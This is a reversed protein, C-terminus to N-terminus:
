DLSPTDPFPTDPFSPHDPNPQPRARRLCTYTSGQQTGLTKYTHTHSTHTCSTHLGGTEQLTNTHAPTPTRPPTSTPRHRGLTGARLANNILQGNKNIGSVKITPVTNLLRQARPSCTVFSKTLNTQVGVLTLSVTLADTAKETNELIKIM